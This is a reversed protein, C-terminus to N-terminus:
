DWCYFLLSCLSHRVLPDGANGSETIAQSRAVVNPYSVSQLELCQSPCSQGRIHTADALPSPGPLWPPQAQRLKNQAEQSSWAAAAGISQKM